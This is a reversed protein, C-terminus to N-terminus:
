FQEWHVKNMPLIELEYPEKEEGPMGISLIAELRYDLPYQLCERLYEEASRGDSAERLRGQIWCSGVGLASAALHMNAMTISCDETWVDTIESNAIVVIACYAGELMKAGGVRCEAMYKLTDKNKVVIFEWPRRTRSSASLMGAQLIKKLKEDEVPETTYKRISRRRRMMELMDM